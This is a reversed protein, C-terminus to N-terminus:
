KVLMMRGTATNIGAKLVTIYTGSSVQRGNDDRGDWVVTHTGATKQESVLTRIKQGTINYIDFTTFEDEPLTFAITTSANFPNPFNATLQFGYPHQTEVDLPEESSFDADYLYIEWTYNNTKM